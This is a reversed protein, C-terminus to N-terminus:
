FGYKRSYNFMVSANHMAHTSSTPSTVIDYLGASDRVNSRPGDIPGGRGPDGPRGRACSLVADAPAPESLSIRVTDSNLVSVGSIISLVTGSANRVDFGSNHTSACLATDIVLPRVPVHYKVDIHTATWDVDIPELPRFKGSRRYMTQHMARAVYQGMLWSGINSLHANDAARPFIYCPSALVVDDQSRSARWKAIGPQGDDYTRRVHFDDQYTFVYPIFKQGTTQVIYENLKRYMKLMTDVYKGALRNPSEATNDDEGQFWAHAWVSYTKNQAKCLAASDAVIKKFGDFLFTGESFGAIPTGGQGCSIGAFVWDAAADGDAVIRDVVGNCISATPSEGVGAGATSYDTEILPLFGTADYGPNDPRNLVGGKLMLNGYPQLISIAPISANGRALSQGFVMVQMVDTRTQKGLEIVASAVATPSSAEAAPLTQMIFGNEDAFEMLGTDTPRVHLGGVSLSGNPLPIIPASAGVDVGKSNIIGASTLYALIFGATDTFEHTRTVTATPAILEKVANLAGTSPVSAILQSTSSSVRRYVFISVDGSGQVRFEAGDVVAARGEAETAYLPGAAALAADKANQAQISFEKSAESGAEAQSAFAEADNKAKTAAASSYEANTAFAKSEEAGAASEASAEVAVKTAEVTEDRLAVVEKKVTISEKIDDMNENAEGIINLNAAVHRVVNYANGLMQEIPPTTGGYPDLPNMTSM